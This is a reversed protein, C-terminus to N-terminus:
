PTTGGTSPTTSGNAYATRASGALIMPVGTAITLLLRRRQDLTRPLFRREAVQTSGSNEEDDFLNSENEQM